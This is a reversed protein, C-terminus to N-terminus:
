LIGYASCASYAMRLGMAFFMWLVLKQFLDPKILKRVSAGCRFGALGALAGILGPILLSDNFVDTAVYGISVPLCGVIILFGSIDVFQRPSVNKMVLYITIPVGWASTLGGILGSSAGFFYQWLYDHKDRMRWKKVFFNNACFALISFSIMIKIFNNGFSSALLATMMLFGSMILAFRYHARVIAKINQAKAFQYMNTITMPILNLGIAELPSVVLTLFTLATTPLGIGLIGKIIGAFFFITAAIFYLSPLSFSFESSM